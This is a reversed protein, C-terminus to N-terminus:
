IKLISILILILCWSGYCLFSGSRAVFSSILVRTITEGVGVILRFFILDWFKMFECSFLNFM